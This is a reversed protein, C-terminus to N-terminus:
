CWGINEALRKEAWACFDADAYCMAVSQTAGRKLGDLSSAYRVELSTAGVVFHAWLQPAVQKVKDHFRELANQIPTCDRPADSMSEYTPRDSSARLLWKFTALPGKKFGLKKQTLLAAHCADSDLDRWRNVAKLLSREAEGWSESPLETTVWEWGKPMPNSVNGVCSTNSGPSDEDSRESDSASECQPSLSSPSPSGDPSGGGNPPVFPSSPSSPEAAAAVAATTETTIETSYLTPTVQPDPPTCRCTLPDAGPPLLTHEKQLHNVAAPVLELFQVNTLKGMDGMDLDRFHRVILGKDRLYNLGDNVQKHSFGFQEEFAKTSRQLFDAKFKKTYGSVRGTVEDRVVTPRYWYVIESLLTIAVFNPKGSDFCLVSYWHAPTINGKFRTDKLQLTIENAPYTM